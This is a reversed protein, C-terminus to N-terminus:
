HSYQCTKPGRQCNNQMFYKCLEHTLYFSKSGSISSEASEEKNSSPSSSPSKKNKNLNEFKLKLALKEM